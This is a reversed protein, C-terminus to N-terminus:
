GCIRDSLGNILKTNLPGCLGKDSTYLVFLIKGETREESYMSEVNINNELIKLLDWVYNRTSVARKQFQRM